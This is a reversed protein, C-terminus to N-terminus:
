IIDARTVLQSWPLYTLHGHDPCVIAEFATLFMLMTDHSVVVEGHIYTNTTSLSVTEDYQSSGHQSTVPEKNRVGWLLLPLVWCSWRGIDESCPGIQYLVVIQVM